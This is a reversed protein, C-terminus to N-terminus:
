TFRILSTTSSARSFYGFKNLNFLEEIIFLKKKNLVALTQSESVQKQM